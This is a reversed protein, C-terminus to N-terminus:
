NGAPEVDDGMPALWDVLVDVDGGMAHAQKRMENYRRRINVIRAVVSAPSEGIVDVAEGARLVIRTPADKVGRAWADTGTAMAGAIAATDLLAVGGGLVHFELFTAM